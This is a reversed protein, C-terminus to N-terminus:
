GVALPAEAPAQPESTVAKFMLAIMVIFWGGFAGVPVWWTFIGNWALPGSRFVYVAFGPVLLPVTWLNLYGAWRPLV